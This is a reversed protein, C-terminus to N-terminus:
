RAGIASVHDVAETALLMLRLQFLGRAGGDGDARLAVEAM